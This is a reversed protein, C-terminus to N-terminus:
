LTIGKEVIFSIETSKILDDISIPLSGGERVSKAFEKLEQLHGKDQKGKWGKSKEGYIELTKFDHVIMTKGDFYIEMYEKEVLISNDEILSAPVDEVSIIGKKILVQKM